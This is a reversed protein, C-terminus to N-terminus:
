KIVVFKKATREQGSILHVLYYGEVFQSVDIQENHVGAPTKLRQIVKGTFDTVILNVYETDTQIEYAVTL